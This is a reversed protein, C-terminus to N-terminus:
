GHALRDLVLRAAEQEARRRSSGTAECAVAPTVVQCRVRFQQAHASGSVEVVEYAPLSGQRAQLLEQLRTKPDKEVPRGAVSELYPSFHGLIVERARVLGGDLYIAAFLAEVADALISDRHHGGNRLEGQGFLLYGGLALDRALRALSDQRVLTARLRSLEGENASAMRVYLAEGIVFGLLADGLFELRENNISGNASSHTLAQELLGPDRFEYGLTRTLHSAPERM